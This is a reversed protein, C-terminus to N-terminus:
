RLTDEPICHYPIKMDLDESELRVSPLGLMLWLAPFSQFSGDELFGNERMVDCINAQKGRGVVIRGM